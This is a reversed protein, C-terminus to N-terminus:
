GLYGVGRCFPRHAATWSALARLRDKRPTALPSLVWLPVARLYAGAMLGDMYVRTLDAVARVSVMLSWSSPCNGQVVMGTM